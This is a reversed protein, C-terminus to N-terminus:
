KAVEKRIAEGREILGFLDIGLLICGHMFIPSMVRDNKRRNFWNLANEASYEGGYNGHVFNYLRLADAETMDDRHRLIPVFLGINPGDQVLHLWEERFQQCHTKSYYHAVDAWKLDPM